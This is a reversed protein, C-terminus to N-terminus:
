RIAEGALYYGCYSLPNATGPKIGARPSIKDIRFPTEMACLREDDASRGSIFLFSNFLVYFRLDDM